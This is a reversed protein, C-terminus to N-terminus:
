KRTLSLSSLMFFLVTTFILYFASFLKTTKWGFIEYIMGMDLQFNEKIGAPATSFAENLSTEM